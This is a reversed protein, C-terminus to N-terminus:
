APTAFTDRPHLPPPVPSVRRDKLRSALDGHRADLVQDCPREHARGARPQAQQGHVDDHQASVQAAGDRRQARTRTRRDRDELRQAPEVIPQQLVEAREGVQRVGVVLHQEPQVVGVVARVLRREGDRAAPRPAEADHQLRALGAEVRLHVLEHRERARRAVVDEDDAVRVRADGRAVEVLDGRVEGVLRDAEHGVGDRALAVLLVARAEAGREVVHVERPRDRRRERRRLDQAALVVDHALRHRHPPAVHAGEAAEADDLVHEGLVEHQAAEDGLPEALADHERARDDAAHRQPARHRREHLAVRAPADHLV